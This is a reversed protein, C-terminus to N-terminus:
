WEFYNAHYSPVWAVTFDSQVSNVEGAATIKWEWLASLKAVFHIKWYSFSSSTLCPKHLTTCLSIRCTSPSPLFSLLFYSLFSPVSCCFPRYTIMRRTPSPPNRGNTRAGHSLFPKRKCKCRWSPRWHRILVRKPGCISEREKIQIFVIIGVRNTIQRCQWHRLLIGNMPLHHM